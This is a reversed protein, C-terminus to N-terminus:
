LGFLRLFVCYRLEAVDKFAYEIAKLNQIRQYRSFKMYNM